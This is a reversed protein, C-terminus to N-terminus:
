ASLDFLTLVDDEVAVRYRRRLHAEFDGYYELWWRAFWPVALYRSGLDRQRELESIAEADDGPAGWWMGDREPFPRAVGDPATTLGTRGEDLLTFPASAVFEELRAMLQHLQHFWSRKRWGAPDVPLGLKRCWRAYPEM